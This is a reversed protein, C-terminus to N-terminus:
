SGDVTERLPHLWLVSLLVTQVYGPFHLFKQIQLGGTHLGGLSHTRLFLVLSVHTTRMLTEEPNAKRDFAPCATTLSRSSLVTTSLVTPPSSNGTPFSSVTTFFCWGRHPASCLPLFPTAGAPWICFQVKDPECVRASDGNVTALLLHLVLSPPCSISSLLHLVFCPSSVLYRQQGEGPGGGTQCSNMFVCSGCCSGDDMRGDM